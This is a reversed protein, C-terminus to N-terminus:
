IEFRHLLQASLWVNRRERVNYTAHWMIRRQESKWVEFINKNRSNECNQTSYKKDYSNVVSSSECLWEILGSADRTPFCSNISSLQTAQTHSNQTKERAPNISSHQTPQINPKKASIEHSLSFSHFLSPVRCPLENFGTSGSSLADVGNAFMVKISRFDSRKIIERECCWHSDYISNYKLM